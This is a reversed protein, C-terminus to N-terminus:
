KVSVFESIAKLDPVQDVKFTMSWTKGKEVRVVQATKERKVWDRNGRNYEVKRQQRMRHARALAKKAAPEQRMLRLITIEQDETRPMKSVTCTITSGPKLSDFNTAM